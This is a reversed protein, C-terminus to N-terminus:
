IKLSFIFKKELSKRLVYLILYYPGLVALSFLGSVLESFGASVLIALTIVVAFFPLVYGFFLARFGLSQSMVVNVHDGPRVNYFGNIRILKEESGLVSCTGKAHCGACASASSIVVTVSDGNNKTVTGEHNIEATNDMM